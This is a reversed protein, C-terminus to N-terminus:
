PKPYNDKVPQVIDTKWKALGHHFIYDLQDGIPYKSNFEAHRKISYEQVDYVSQLEKIKDDIQKDSPRANEEDLWEM